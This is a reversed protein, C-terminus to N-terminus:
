GRKRGSKAQKAAHIIDRARRWATSGEPLGRSARTAHIIADDARGLMAYREATALSAQADQGARAYAQALDRLMRPNRADRSRAEQLVDLAARNGDRSNLALLARGLGSLILANNPALDNARKYAAVADMFRRSELLIQGKLEYLYPDDPRLSLARDIEARAKAPAPTRHHAVAMAMARIDDDKAQRFKRFTSSPAQLFAGLKARARLFWYDSQADAEYEPVSAAAARLARLRDTTLPHSRVYPDQRRVSLAEQGRFLELVNLVSRPDVNAQAMYRVASLDASAEEARTHALFAGRASGAVGIALGGAAQANGSAASAMALLFGLGATNRAISMNESRRTLHGNAIHALEHAIVGQFEAASGLRLLLGTHIFVHSSDIVFANMQPNQVVMVRMRNPNLGAANIIPRALQALAQEIDADRILTVAKAPSTAILLIFIVWHPIYKFRAVM